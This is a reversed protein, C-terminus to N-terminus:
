ITGELMEPRGLESLKLSSSSLDSVWAFVGPSHISPKTCCIALAFSKDSARTLAAFSNLANSCATMFAVFLTDQMM